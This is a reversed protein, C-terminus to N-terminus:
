GAQSKPGNYVGGISLVLRPFEPRINTIEWRTGRWTVYRMLHMHTNAYDDAVFSIESSIVVNDILGMGPQIKHYVRNVDGSYTKETIVESTVYPATEKQEAFGVVGHWKSM